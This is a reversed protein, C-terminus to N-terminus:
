GGNQYVDPNYCVLGQESFSRARYRGRPISPQSRGVLNSFLRKNNDTIVRKNFRSYYNVVGQRLQTISLQKIGTMLRTVNWSVLYCKEPKYGVGRPMGEMAPTAKLCKNKIKEM